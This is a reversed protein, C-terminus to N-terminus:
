KMGGNMGATSRTSIVLFDSTMVGRQSSPLWTAHNEGLVAGRRLDLDDRGIQQLTEGALNRCLYMASGSAHM